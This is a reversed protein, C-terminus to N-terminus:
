TNLYWHSQIQNKVAAPPRVVAEFSSAHLDGVWDADRADGAVVVYLDRGAREVLYGIEWGEVPERFRVYQGPAFISLDQKLHPTEVLRSVLAPIHTMGAEVSANYRHIGDEIVYGRGGKALRIPPLAKGQAMARQIAELRRPKWVKEPKIQRLPVLVYENYTYFGQLKSTEAEREPDRRTAAAVASRDVKYHRSALRRMHDSAVQRALQQSRRTM